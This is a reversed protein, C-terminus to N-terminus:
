ILDTTRHEHGLQRLSQKTAGFTTPEFGLLAGSNFFANKLINHFFLFTKILPTRHVQGYPRIFITKRNSQDDTRIWGIRRM